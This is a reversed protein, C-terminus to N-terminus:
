LVGRRKLYAYPLIAAVLMLLLAVPYGLDWKLEPMVEFNMGYVGAVLTPPLFILSAISLVRFVSNQEISIMGLTADLLFNVRGTLYTGHDMLGIIDKRIAEIQMQNEPLAAKKHHNAYAVVRNFTVLSEHTKSSLDGCRGIRELVQQYDVTAKKELGELRTRFVDKTIRDIDRDLRELIDAMRNVIAEVLGLFLTVGDHDGVPLKPAMAIFRRFSTADIYRITVLVHDTLMFTVAHTEPAGSDVKTVMTTTMYHTGHETYLRNSVEIERMEEHTPIEMQLFEEVAKEEANTPNLLDIWVANEPISLGEGVEHSLIHRNLETFVIM